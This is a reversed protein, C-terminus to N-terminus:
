PTAVSWVGGFGQGTTNGPATDKIFTYLPKGNYTVQKTGDSRTITGLTGTVDTPATPTGTTTLPPWNAACAATCNSTNATDKAYVYLTMGSANTLIKGLKPDTKVMITTSGTASSGM